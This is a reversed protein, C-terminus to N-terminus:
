AQIEHSQEKQEWQRVGLEAGEAILRPATFREGHVSVLQALNATLMKPGIAEILHLPGGHHPAFGTGLVMALDIAWGHEVIRLELCRAAEILMPYVLRRQIPTLSDPLFALDAEGDQGRGRGAERRVGVPLEAPKGKKGKTYRYFGIGSKKGLRGQEAMAALPGAVSNADALVGRLSDAVHLAVDIGVQDLLELPGMPMGFRKLERDITAIEFGESVMRVAEGLYPFLVRNVVMGPSDKTVIPTKGLARVLSVLRAITDQDTQPAAVIEVLEMSYVPNFFHLGAVKAARQTVSAMSAISLSSTNSALITSAPTRRDLTRFIEHKVSEQEVAAEIVLDVGDLADPEHRVPVKAVM